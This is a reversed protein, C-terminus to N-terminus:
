KKPSKQRALKHELAARQKAARTAVPGGAHRSELERFGELARDNLGARADALALGLRAEPESPTDAFEEVVRTFYTRAPGIRKLKLYLHGTDTLKRALRSRAALVRAEAEPNLWHGPYARLYTQWQALAKETFEQDFDPGRAQGWLASGLRFSAAGSSDSEPYDRLLREFDNQAMAWDHIHLHCEGLMELAHDVEAGGANGAVYRDLLEVAVNYDRREFAARAEALREGESHIAPLTSAGCGALSVALALLVAGGPFWGWARSM